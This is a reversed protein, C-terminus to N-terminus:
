GALIFKRVEHTPAGRTIVSYKQPKWDLQNRNYWATCTYSLIQLEEDNQAMLIVDEAVLKAPDKLSNGPEMGDRGLANRLEGSM